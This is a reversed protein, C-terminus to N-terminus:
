AKEYNQFLIKLHLNKKNRKYDTKTYFWANAIKSLKFDQEIDQLMTVLSKYDGTLTIQNSLVNFQDVRAHHISEIDIINVKFDSNSIYKVLRQQVEEPGINVGGIYAEITKIEQNLVSITQSYDLDNLQSVQLEKLEKNIQFIESFSKKYIGLILLVSLLASYFVKKKYTINQFM